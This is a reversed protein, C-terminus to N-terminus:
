IAIATGSRNNRAEVLASEARELLSAANDNKQCQTIGYSARVPEPLATNRVSLQNGLKNVLLLASDQTSEQLVLIFDHRNNCGILDAWRTQDKLLTAVAALTPQDANRINLGMAVVSLPCNYRRSRAVLPELSVLIGHQSFLSPLREDRLSLERLEAALADRERRIRLKETIDHYFRASIAATDGLTVTEVKFWRVDGDPMIWNVARERGLLPALSSDYQVHDLTTVGSEDILLAFARNFGRVEGGAGTILLAVPCTELLALAEELNIDKM